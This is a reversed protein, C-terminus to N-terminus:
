ASSEFSDGSNLHEIVFPTGDAKRQLLELPDKVPKPGFEKEDWLENYFKFFGERPGEPGYIVGTVHFETDFHGVVKIGRKHLEKNLNEFFQGNGNLDGDVPYAAANTDKLDAKPVHAIAWFEAGYFGVQILEPQVEDVFPLHTLPHKGDRVVDALVDALRPGLDEGVTCSNLLRCGM